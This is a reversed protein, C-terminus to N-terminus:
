LELDGEPDHMTDLDNGPDTMEVGAPIEFLSPSVPVDFQINVFETVIHGEPGDTELRLPFEREKWVWATTANNNAPDAFEYVDCLTGNVTEQRIVKGNRENVYGVYDNIDGAVGGQSTELAPLKMALHEDPLYTFIGQDNRIAVTTTGEQVAEMRFKEDQIIVKATTVEDDMVTKQDYSVSRAWVPWAAGFACLGGLMLRAWGAASRM